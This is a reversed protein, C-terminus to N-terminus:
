APQADFAFPTSSAGSRLMEEMVTGVRLWADYNLFATAGAERAKDQADLGSVYLISLTPRAARLMEILPLGDIDAARHVVAATL